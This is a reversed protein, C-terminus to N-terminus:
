FPAYRTATWRTPTPANCLLARKNRWESRLARRHSHSRSRHISVTFHTTQHRHWETGVQKVAKKAGGGGASAPQQPAALPERLQSAILDSLLVRESPQSVIMLPPARYSDCGHCEGSKVKPRGKSQTPRVMGSVEDDDVDDARLVQRDAAAPAAAM